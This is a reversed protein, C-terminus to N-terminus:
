VTEAKDLFEEYIQERTAPIILWDFVKRKNGSMGGSYSKYVGTYDREGQGIKKWTEYHNKPSGKPEHKATIAEAEFSSIKGDALQQWAKSVTGGPSWFISGSCGLTFDNGNPGYSRLAAYTQCYLSENEEHKSIWIKYSSELEDLIQDLERKDM